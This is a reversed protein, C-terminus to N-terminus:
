TSRDRSDLTPPTILSPPSCVWERPMIDHDNHRHEKHRLSILLITFWDTIFQKVDVVNGLETVQVFIINPEQIFLHCYYMYMYTMICLVNYM